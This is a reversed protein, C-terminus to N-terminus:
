KGKCEGFKINFKFNKTLGNIISATSKLIWFFIEMQRICENENNMDLEFYHDVIMLTNTGGLCMIKDGLFVV